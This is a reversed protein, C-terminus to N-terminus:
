VEQVQARERVCACVKKFRSGSSKSTSQLGKVKQTRCQHMMAVLLRLACWDHIVMHRAAKQVHNVVRAPPRDNGAMVAGHRSSIRTRPMTWCLIGGAM